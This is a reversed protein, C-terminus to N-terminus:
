QCEQEFGQLTKKQADVVHLQEGPAFEQIEYFLDGGSISKSKVVDLVRALNVGQTVAEKEKAILNDIYTTNDKFDFEYDDYQNYVEQGRAIIAYKDNTVVGSNNMGETIFNGSFKGADNLLNLDNLIERVESSIKEEGNVISEIIKNLPNPNISDLKNLSNVLHELTDSKDTITKYYADIESTLLSSQSLDNKFVSNEFAANLRQAVSDMANIWKTNDESGFDSFRESLRYDNDSFGMLCSFLRQMLKETTPVDEDLERLAVDILSFGNATDYLVNGPGFDLKFGMNNLEVVDSMLKLIQEDTAQVIRACEAEFNQLTKGSGIIHAQQGSALEQIEYLVKDNYKSKSEVTTLIRALEVGKSKAEAMKLILNELYTGSKFGFDYYEKDDFNDYADGRRSIIAYRDNMTVGKSSMGQDSFRGIFNGESDLLHLAQLVDKVEQQIRSSDKMVNQVLYHLPQTQITDLQGLLEITRQLTLTQSDDTNNLKKLKNQSEAVQEIVDKEELLADTTNKAREFIVDEIEIGNYEGQFYETAIKNFKNLGADDPLIEIKRGNGLKLIVREYTQGFEDLQRDAEDIAEGLEWYREEQSSTLGGDMDKQNLEEFRNRKRQNVDSGYQEAIEQLLELKDELAGNEKKIIELEEEDVIDIKAVIGNPKIGETLSKYTEIFRSLKGLESKWIKVEDSDNSGPGENKFADLWYEAENVMDAINFNETGQSFVTGITRHEKGITNMLKNYRKIVSEMNLTKKGQIAVVKAEEQGAQKILDIEEQRLTNIKKLQAERAEGLKQMEKNLETEERDLNQGVMDGSANGSSLMRTASNIESRLTKVVDSFLENIHKNTTKQGSEFLVDLEKMSKNFEVFEDLDKYMGQSVGYNTTYRNEVMRCLQNYKEQYKNRTKLLENFEDLEKPAGKLLDTDYVVHGVGLVEKGYNSQKKKFRERAADNKAQQAEIEKLKQLEKDLEANVQSQTRLKTKAVNEQSKATQETVQTVDDIIKTDKKTSSKSKRTRKLKAEAKAVQNIAEAQEKIAAVTDETAATINDVTKKRRKEAAEVTKIADTQQTIVKTQEGIISLLENQEKQINSMQKTYKSIGDFNKASLAKDLSKQVKKAEKELEKFRKQADSINLTLEIPEEFKKKQAEIQSEVKKASDADLVEKIGVSLDFEYKAM